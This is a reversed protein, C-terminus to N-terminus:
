GFRRSGLFRNFSEDTLSEGIIVEIFSRNSEMFQRLELKKQEMRRETRRSAFHGVLTGAGILAFWASVQAFGKLDLLIDLTFVIAFGVCMFLANIAFVGAAESRVDGRRRKIEGEIQANREKSGVKLVDSGCGPCM